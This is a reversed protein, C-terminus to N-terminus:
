DMPVLANAKIGDALAGAVVANGAATWHEDEFGFFLPRATDEGAAQMAPLIPIFPAGIRRALEEMDRDIRGVDLEVKPFAAAVRARFEPDGQLKSTSVFLGFRAGM